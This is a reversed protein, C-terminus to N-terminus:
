ELTKNETDDKAELTVIPYYDSDKNIMPLFCQVRGFAILRLSLSLSTTQFLRTMQSFYASDFWHQTQAVLSVTLEAASLGVRARWLTITCESIIM